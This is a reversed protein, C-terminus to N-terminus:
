RTDVARLRGDLDVTLPPVGKRIIASRRTEILPVVTAGAPWAAIDRCPALTSRPVPVVYATGRESRIATVPVGAYLGDVIRMSKGSLAVLREAIARGVPDGTSAAGVRPASASATARERIERCAGASTWWFPGEAPRAEVRVAGASLDTRLSASDPPILEELRQGPPIALVYIRSWPLPHVVLDDRARAYELLEADETTMVDAGADLADRADGTVLRIAFNTGAATGSDTVLALTPDALIPPVSDYPRDLTVVLRRQDLPVVSVVGAHRLTTAAEPRTRWEAAAASASTHLAAGAFVLTWSRGSRDRSWSEAAAPRATGTCDLRVIPQPQANAVVATDGPWPVAVALARPRGMSGTPVLCPDAPVAPEPQTEAAGGGCGVSLWTSLAAGLVGARRTTRPIM